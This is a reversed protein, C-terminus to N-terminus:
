IGETLKTEITNIVMEPTILRSCEFDKRTFCEKTVSDWFYNNNDLTTRTPTDCGIIHM